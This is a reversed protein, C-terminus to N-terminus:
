RPAARSEIWYLGRGGTILVKAGPFFASDTMFVPPKENLWPVVNDLFCTPIEHHSGRSCGHGILNFPAM